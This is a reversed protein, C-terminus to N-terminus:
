KEVYSIEAKSITIKGEYICVCLHAVDPVKELITDVNYSATFETDATSIGPLAITIAADGGDTAIDAWDATWGQFRGVWDYANTPAIATKCYLTLVVTGSAAKAKITNIDAVNISTDGDCSVMADAIKEIKQTGLIQIKKITVNHGTISLGNTKVYEVAADSGLTLLTNTATKLDASEVKIDQGVDNLAIKAYGEADNPDTTFTFSLVSDKNVYQMLDKSIVFPTDWDIATGTSDEYIIKSQWGAYLTVDATVTVPFTAATTCEADTFWGTFFYGDRTPDSAPKTVTSGEEVTDTASEAGEYNKDFKVSYQPNASWLAYLTIDETIKTTFSFATSADDKTTTWGGFNPKETDETTPNEPQTATTGSEVTQAAITGVGGNLDFTVTFYVKADEKESDKTSGSDKKEEGDTNSDNKETQETNTENNDSGSNDTGTTPDCSAFLLTAAFICAAATKLLNTKKM